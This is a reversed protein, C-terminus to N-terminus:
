KDIKIMNNNVFTAREFERINMSIKPVNPFIKTLLTVVNTSLLKRQEVSRGELVNAFVYIFDDKAGMTTFHKFTNIRVMANNEFSETSVVKNYVTEVLENPYIDKLIGESCEIILHPM